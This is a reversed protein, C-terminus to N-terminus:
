LKELSQPPSWTLTITTGHGPSSTIHATGGANLTRELISTRVGLRETARNPDFGQGNDSITITITTEHWTVTIRRTITGPGAHQISNMLAQMTAAYLDDVVGPPVAHEDLGDTHLEVATGLETIATDFRARLATRRAAAQEAFRPLGPM